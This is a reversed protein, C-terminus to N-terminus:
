FSEQRDQLSAEEMVLRQKEEANDDGISRAERLLVYYAM